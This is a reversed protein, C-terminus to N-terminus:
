RDLHASGPSKTLGVAPRRHDRRSRPALARWADRHLDRMGGYEADSVVQICVSDAGADLHAQVRAAITAEDGWVIVADVLRDSGGAALDSETFGLRM